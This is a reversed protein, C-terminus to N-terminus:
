FFLYGLLLLIILIFLSLFSKKLKKQLLPSGLRNVFESQRTQSPGVPIKSFHRYLPFVKQSAKSFITPMPLFIKRREKEIFILLCVGSIERLIKKKQKFIKKYERLRRIEALDQLIGEQAFVNFVDKTAVLVKDGKSLKGAVVNSFTRTLSSTNEGLDFVENERLLLIKLNDSKSLNILFTPTLSIAAFNLNGLWVTNNREIERELLENAKQLATKFCDAAEKQPFRYYEKQIVGALETLLKETKPEGGCWFRSKHHPPLVNKLEGILYLSGLDREPKKAPVFCFTDFLTNEKQSKKPNFHFEFVKM